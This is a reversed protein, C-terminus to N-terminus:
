KEIVFRENYTWGSSEDTDWVESAFKIGTREHLIEKIKRKERRHFYKWLSPKFNLFLAYLDLITGTYREIKLEIYSKGEMLNEIWLSFEEINSESFVEEFLLDEDEEQWAYKSFCSNGNRKDWEELRQIFFKKEKKAEIM